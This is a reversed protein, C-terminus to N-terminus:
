KTLIIEPTSIQNSRNLARDCISVEYKITDWQVFPNNTFLAMKLEGELTKNQGVPTLNPIRSNNNLTDGGPTFPPIVVKVWVGNQKEFYNIFFNYYYLSGRNFPPFTDAPSLGVDGDGDTFKLILVGSSDKGSKDKIQNFGVFRIAPTNSLQKDKVCGSLAVLVPIAAALFRWTHHMNM